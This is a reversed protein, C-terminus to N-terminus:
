STPYPLFSRQLLDSISFPLCLRFIPVSHALIQKPPSDTVLLDISYCIPNLYQSTCTASREAPGFVFETQIYTFLGQQLIQFTNEDLPEVRLYSLFRSTELNLDVLGFYFRHIDFQMCGLTCTGLTFGRVAFSRFFFYLRM